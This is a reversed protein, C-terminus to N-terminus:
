ENRGGIFIRNRENIPKILYIFYGHWLLCIGADLGKYGRYVKQIKPLWKKYDTKRM